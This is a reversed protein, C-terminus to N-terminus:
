TLLDVGDDTIILCDEIWVGAVEKAYENALSINVYDSPEFGLDVENDNLMFNVFYIGPEVTINM